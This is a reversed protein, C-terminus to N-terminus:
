ENLRFDFDLSECEPVDQFCDCIGSGWKDSELSSMVPQPQQIVLISSMTADPVSWPPKNVASVHAVFLFRSSSSCIISLGYDWYDGTQLGPCSFVLTGNGIRM